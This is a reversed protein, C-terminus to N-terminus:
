IRERQSLLPTFEFLDTCIFLLSTKSRDSDQKEFATHMGFFRALRIKKEIKNNNRQVTPIVQYGPVSAKQPPNHRSTPLWVFARMNTRKPPLWISPYNKVLTGLYMERSLTYKTPSIVFGRGYM